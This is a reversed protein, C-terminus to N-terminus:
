SRGQTTDNRRFGSDLASSAESREAHRQNNSRHFHTKYRYEKLEAESMVIKGKAIDQDIIDIMGRIVKSLETTDCKSTHSKKVIKMMFSSTDSWKWNLHDMLRAIFREQAENKKQEKVSPNSRKDALNRLHILVLNATEDDQINRVFGGSEPAISHVITRYDEEHLKLKGHALFGIEKNIQTRTM